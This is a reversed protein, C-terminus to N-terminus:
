QAQWPDVLEIGADEFDKTNRTALTAHRARCIAAIQADPVTIPRGLKDRETVLVAYAEAALVDFPEVRGAFDDNILAHVAEALVTKRRGSPLRAIGYLLESVTIATTAVEAAPLADLWALVAEEPAQRTLESLVNTDLVIM